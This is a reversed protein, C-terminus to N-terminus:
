LHPGPPPALVCYASSNRSVSISNNEDAKSDDKMVEDNDGEEEEKDHFINQEKDIDENITSGVGKVEFGEKKEEEKEEVVEKEKEYKKETLIREWKLEM